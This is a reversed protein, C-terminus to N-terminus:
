WIEPKNPSIMIDKSSLYKYPEQQNCPSTLCYSIESRSCGFNVAFTCSPPTIAESGSVLSISSLSDSTLLKKRGITSTSAFVDHSWVIVNEGLWEKWKSNKGESTQKIVKLTQEMQSHRRHKWKILIIKSMQSIAIFHKNM